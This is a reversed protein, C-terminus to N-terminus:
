FVQPVQNSSNNLKKMNEAFSQGDMLGVNIAGHAKVRDALGKMDMVSRIVEIGETVEENFM